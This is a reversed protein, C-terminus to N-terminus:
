CIRQGNGASPERTLFPTTWDRGGQWPASKANAVFARMKAPDKFRANRAVGSSVDVAYPRTESVARAVNDPDLGGALVFPRDSFDQLWSWDFRTGTGGFLGPVHTDFLFAAVGYRDLQGASLPGELRICKFVPWRCRVCYEDTETGQLQVADLHCGAATAHVFELSENVFVGVSRAVPSVAQVITRALDLSVRRPSASFVLGIFDAGADAAAEADEIRTIGCIKVAVTM